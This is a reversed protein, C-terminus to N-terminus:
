GKQAVIILEQLSFHLEGSADQRPVLFLKFLPPGNVLADHLRAIVDPPCRMRSVWSRFDLEKAFQEFALIKFGRAQLLDIWTSPPPAFGHSPDRLKEFDNYQVIATELDGNSANPFLNRDPAVNDVFAFRGGPKLVRRVEDVFAELSPFHHAALRCSVLDFSNDAFPLADAAGKATIMNTLNRTKALKASEALMEHTIDSAIVSAVHPAFAAATHGAGTAVDLAIWDSQPQTLEVARALSEGQAHVASTAYDGASRGFQSKVLDERKSNM